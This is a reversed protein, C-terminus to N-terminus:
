VFLLADLTISTQTPALPIYYIDIASFIGREGLKCPRIHFSEAPTIRWSKIQPAAPSLTCESNRLLKRCFNYDPRSRRHEENQLLSNKFETDPCRSVIFGKVKLSESQYGPVLNLLMNFKLFSSLIQTKAKVIDETWFSTKLETLYLFKEDGNQFMTVGDCDHMFVDVAKYKSFVSNLDKAIEPNFTTFTSNVWEVDTM